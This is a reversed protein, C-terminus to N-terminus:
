RRGRRRGSCWWLPRAADATLTQAPYTGGAVEVVAGSGAVHFARDFSRCPAAQSCGGADSGGVSVFVSAAPLVCDATRAGSGCPTTAVSTADVTWTASASSSGVGNRVTVTFTHVGAALGTYGTPTSCPQAAAGDLVCTTGGVGIVQWSFLASPQPTHDAPRDVISVTPAGGSQVPPPPPAQITWGAMASVTKGRRTVSITFTHAGTALHAYSAPSACAATAGDLSCRQDPHAAGTFRWAFVADTATTASAPESTITVGLRNARAFQSALRRSPRDGASIAAFGVWRRSRLTRVVLSHWRLRAPEATLDHLTLRYPAHRDRAVAAGDLIFLVGGAARGHYTVRRTAGVRKVSVRPHHRVVGRALAGVPWALVLTLMALPILMATRRRSPM